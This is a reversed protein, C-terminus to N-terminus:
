GPAETPRRAMLTSCKISFVEADEQNYLSSAYVVIGCDPRSRSLRAQETTTVCRLSDGAYVPKHMRLEDFGLSAIAQQERGNEWQPSTICFISFVHASCATLGGFVSARAAEEDIHWPQPDWQQAFAIIDPATVTCRGCAVVDGM